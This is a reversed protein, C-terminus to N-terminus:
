PTYVDPRLACERLLRNEEVNPNWLLEGYLAVPLPLAEEILGDEVLGVLFSQPNTNLVSLLARKAYSLNELWYANVYHWVAKKSEFRQKLLEPSAEGLVFPGKQHLFSQWDLCILGKTVAGFRDERGRLTAITRVFDETAEFDEVQQPVYAYPFAGMDEWIIYVRPDTNKIIDTKNKVSTAHLGFLLQLQPNEELLVAAVDNVLSTVEQAINLGDAEEKTTETFSQFYIGDLEYSAYQRRYEEAIKSRLGKLYERSLHVSTNDWGWAYGAYVRIGCSHAYRIVEKLNVPPHDNWLVLTNMKMTVMRDLYRRYDFIVHGWTWLGRHRFAPASTFEFPAPLDKRFLSYFYPMHYHRNKKDPLLKYFLEVTGYLVGAPDKESAVILLHKGPAYPNEMFKVTFGEEKDCCSLHGDQSLKRVYPNDEETGLILCDQSLLAEDWPDACICRHCLDTYPTLSSSAISLAKKEEPASDSYLLLFETAMLAGKAYFIM